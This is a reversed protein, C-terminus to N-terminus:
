VVVQSLKMIGNQHRSTHRISAPSAKRWGIRVVMSLNPSNRNPTGTRTGALRDVDAGSRGTAGGRWSPERGGGRIM